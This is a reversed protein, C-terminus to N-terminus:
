GNRDAKHDQRNKLQASKIGGEPVLQGCRENDSGRRGDQDFCDAVWKLDTTKDCKRHGKKAPFDARDQTNEGNWNNNCNM